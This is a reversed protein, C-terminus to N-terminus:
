LVLSFVHKLTSYTLPVVIILSSSFSSCSKREDLGLLYIGKKDDNALKM